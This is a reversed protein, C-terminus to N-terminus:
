IVATEDAPTLKLEKRIFADVEEIEINLVHAFEEYLLKEADKMMKEDVASVKKRNLLKNERESYLTKMLMVLERRDANKLIEAYKEKRSNDSDSRILPEDPMINILEHVEGSSLIPKMRKESIGVPAYITSNGAYVPQIIYYLKEENNFREKRVDSIKCVGTAGYIIYSGSEFM